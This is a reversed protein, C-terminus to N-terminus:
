SIPARAKILILGAKQNTKLQVEPRIIIKDLRTRTQNNM